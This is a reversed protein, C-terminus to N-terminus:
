LEGRPYLAARAQTALNRLQEPPITPEDLVPRPARALRHARVSRVAELVMAPSPKRGFEWLETAVIRDVADRLEDDGVEALARRYLRKDSDGYSVRAATHVAAVAAEIARDSAM